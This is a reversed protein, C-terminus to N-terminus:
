EYRLANLASIKKARRAPYFGTFVGVLMSLLVVNIIMIIPIQSVNLFGGSKGFAFITLLFGVLKGAAYGLLLGFVGGFFGMIMSETLFLDRVEVSKMGLSKMLGVERTRELLSVTLTNFMGLAAVALAVTGILALLKRLTTFLNNVQAVTDAVSTTSFGMAEVKDRAMKLVEKNKSILKIQSYNVVGLSRLDIFPVYFLPNKGQSVVGVITYNAPSSVIRKESDELLNSTVIFSTEFQKGIAEGEPIGLISLMASNVVAEKKANEPLAISEEKNAQTANEDILDIWDASPDEAVSTTTLSKTEEGLVVSQGSLLSNDIIDIGVETIYGEAELQSKDSNALEKYKQEKCNDCEKKDWLLFDSKIWKGKFEGSEDKTQNSEDGAAYTEGLIEEGTKEKGINKTYGIIKSGVSPTERVRLWADPDISFSVTNEDATDGKVISEGLVKESAENLTLAQEPDEQSVIKALEDSDFIKGQIPQISSHVLYQSTVGYVAVDSVSNQYSVKGVVSIMPMASAVENISGINNLTEDNIKIKSGSQVTVDAQMMENLKAIRSIVLEQLGYGISVLFVIAAIGIAMGGITVFTRSKKTKLSRLSLDILEIRGISGEKELGFIKAVRIYGSSTKRNLYEAFNKPLIRLKLFSIIFKILTYALLSVSFVSIYWLSDKLSIFLGKLLTYPFLIIKLFLGLNKKPAILFKKNDIKNKKLIEM